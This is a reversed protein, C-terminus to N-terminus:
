FRYHLGARLTALSREEGLLPVLTVVEGALGRYMRWRVGAAVAVHDIPARYLFLSNLDAVLSVWNGILFEGGVIAAMGARPDFAAPTVAVSSVGSLQGHLQLFPFPSFALSLGSDLGVPWANRYLGVATPLTLQGTVALALNDAEYVVITAGASTNGLGIHTAQLSAIALRAHVPQFSGFLELRETLAVSGFVRGSVQGQIPSGSGVHVTPNLGYKEPEFVVTGAGGFGAETRPCARRPAGLDGDLFNAAVPGQGLGGEITACPSALAPGAPLAAALLALVPLPTRM